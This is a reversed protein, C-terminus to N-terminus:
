CDSLAFDKIASRETIELVVNHPELGQEVLLKRTQGTAFDPIQYFEMFIGGM